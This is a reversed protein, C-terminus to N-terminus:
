HGIAIWYFGENQGPYSYWTGHSKAVFSANGLSSVYIASPDSPNTFRPGLTVSRCAGPFTIPFYVVTSGYVNVYSTVVGWQLILGGPIVQYGNTNFSKNWFHGAVDVNITSVINRVFGTTALKDSWDSNPQTPATPSGTLNPSWLPAKEQITSLYRLTGTGTATWNNNYKCFIFAEGLRCTVSTLISSVSIVDGGQRNVTLSSSFCQIMFCSGDPVSNVPPLTVTIDGEGAAHVMAGMYEATLVSGNVAWLTKNFQLGSEKVFETTAPANSKDFKVPTSFKVLKSDTRTLAM